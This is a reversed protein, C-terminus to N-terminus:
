RRSWSEWVFPYCWQCDHTVRLRSVIADRRATADPIVDHFQVQLNVIRAMLGTTILHSLLEYEGGEINVKMLDVEEVAQKRFFQAASVLHVSTAGAGHGFVSSADGQVCFEADRTQSGLGFPFVEIGPNMGFRRSIGAAFEPVPEFVMVRCLFRSYIDSAWQGEFGGVDLVLSGSVLPYNLRLTVDGKCASWPRAYSEGPSEYVRHAVHDAIAAGRRLALGCRRRVSM